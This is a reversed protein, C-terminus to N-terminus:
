ATGHSQLKRNRRARPDTPDVAFENSALLKGFRQDSAVAGAGSPEKSRGSEAKRQARLEKRRAKYKKYGSTEKRHKAKDGNGVEASQGGKGPGGVLYEDDSADAVDHEVAEQQDVMTSEGTGKTSETKTDRFLLGTGGDPGSKTKSPFAPEDSPRLFADNPGDFAQADTESEMHDADAAVVSDDDSDALDGGGLLAAKLKSRLKKAKKRRKQTRSASTGHSSARAESDEDSESESGSGLYQQLDADDVQPGFSGGSTASNMRMQLLRSREEDEGDWTIEVKTAQLAKTSFVPARYRAGSGEVETSRDKIPRGEFSQDDPVFRVDMVNGSQELERGDCEQQVALGTQASDCEAIAFYYKLKALEYQRVASLDPESGQGGDDENSHRRAADRRGKQRRKQQLDRKHADSGEASPGSSSSQVNSAASLANGALM